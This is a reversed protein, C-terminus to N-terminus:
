SSEMKRLKEYYVPDETLHDIAIERAMDIDGTHEKEVEIGWQLMLKILVIPADHMEAIEEITKNDGIGGKIKDEALFKEINRQINIKM